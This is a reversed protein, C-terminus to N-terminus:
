KAVKQKVSKGSAASKSTERVPKQLGEITKWVSAGLLRHNSFLPTWLVM